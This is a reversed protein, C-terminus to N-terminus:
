DFNNFYLSRDFMENMIFIKFTCISIITIMRAENRLIVESQSRTIVTSKVNNM